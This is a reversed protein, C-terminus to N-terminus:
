RRQRPVGAGDRHRTSKGIVGPDADYNPQTRKPVKRRNPDDASTSRGFSRSGPQSTRRRLSVEAAVQTHAHSAVDRHKTWPSHPLAGLSRDRPEKKAPWTVNARGRDGDSVRPTAGGRGRRRQEQAAAHALSMSGSASAIGVSGAGAGAVPSSAGVAVQAVGSLSSTTSSAQVPHRRAGRERINGTDSGAPNGAHSCGASQATSPAAASPPHGSFKEHLAQLSNDKLDLQRKYLRIQRQTVAQLENLTATLQEVQTERMRLQVGLDNDRRRLQALERQLHAQQTKEAPQRNLSKQSGVDTSRRSRPVVATRKDDSVLNSHVNRHAAPAPSVEPPLILPTALRLVDEGGDVEAHACRLDQDDFCDIVVNVDESEKVPTSEEVSIRPSRLPMGADIAEGADGLHDECREPSGSADHPSSEPLLDRRAETSSSRQASGPASQPPIERACRQDQLQKFLRRIAEDKARSKTRHTELKEQLKDVMQELHRGLSSCWTEVEAVPVGRSEERLSACSSQCRQLEEMAATFALKMSSECSGGRLPSSMDISKPRTPHLPAEAPVGPTAAVASASGPSEPSEPCAEQQRDEPTTPDDGRTEVLPRGWAYSPPAHFGRFVAPGSNDEYQSTSTPAHMQPAPEVLGNQQYQSVGAGGNVMESELGYQAGDVDM